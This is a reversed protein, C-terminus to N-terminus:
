EYIVDMGLNKEGAALRKGAVEEVTKEDVGNRAWLYHREGSLMVRGTQKYGEERLVQGVQQSSCRALGEELHLVDMLQKSSVIDYQVLPYDAEILLRRITATLDSASDNIVEAVYTTRPAHGYPEFEPSIEWESLYARLAGPMDRLMAFLKNFYNEGLQLVQAKSQLRSKVVFYRRDNPTLALADHHNSFLMYNSINPVERTDRNRQNIPISSNTVPEKLANMVEYRNAGAVRIEEIIVLQYGFAWENWGKKITDGSIKKVHEPGLVAKMCEALFTKGCGEVGQLLVAWTIKRGPNQVMFAMFDTLTRRYEKEEILNELHNQLLKGAEIANKMNLEPYTPSYTNVFKRGRSIFFMEGPQSPDYAYDYVTAIKLHNLAYDSPSVIPKSLTAPTIPIGADKLSDETPLLWRSYTANFSEAKYREGTRQRYFDQPASIYCVGKAWKPEKVKEPPKERNRMELKIRTIDRRVSTTSLSYAFRKKAQRTLEQVLMDEQMASLLPAALIKHVGRDMLDTVSEAGEELWRMVAVFATEKVKKDDWGAAVALKLLTRITIPLRGVPTPRLSDWKARTEEDGGYKTGGESWKDFLEFAEEAKHPSFQHRLAAACELWEFYTCDPDIHELADRAITLTVEPVPARLFELADMGHESSGNSGHKPEVYEPFLTEAIDAPEFPRGELQHAIVPHEEEGSDLFITPLFMPQVAVKSETTLRTLGLLSAITAVAQPYIALPIGKADVVIRMRPKEPTSSATTHAAFNFGQLATFLAEPNNYFPAAPCKGDRQEDLDIFILNCHTAQEYTRKSPSSKFCAPVFFPVQKVENRQKKDLALFAKRTIGLKPPVRFRDVVDRFTLDESARV